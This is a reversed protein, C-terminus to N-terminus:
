TCYVAARIVTGRLWCSSMLPVMVDNYCTSNATTRRQSWSRTKTWAGTEAKPATFPQHDRHCRLHYDRGGPVSVWQTKPLLSASFLPLSYISVSLRNWPSTSKEKSAFLLCCRLCLLAKVVLASVIGSPVVPFRKLHPFILFVTILTEIDSM